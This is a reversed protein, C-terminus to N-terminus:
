GRERWPSIKRWRLAATVVGTLGIVGLVAAGAAVRPGFAAAAARAGATVVSYWESVSSAFAVSGQASWGPLLGLIGSGPVGGVLVAGIVAFLLSAAVPVMAVFRRRLRAPGLAALVARELGPDAPPVARNFILGLAHEAAAVERCGACVELHERAAQELHDVAGCHEALAEQVTQCETAVQAEM